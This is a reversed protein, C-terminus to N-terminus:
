YKSNPREAFVENEPMITTVVGRMEDRPKKYWDNNEYDGMEDSYDMVNDMEDDSDFFPKEEISKPPGPRKM